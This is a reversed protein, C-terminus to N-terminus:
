RGPLPLLHLPRLEYLGDPLPALDVTQAAGSLHETTGAVGFVYVPDADSTQVYLGYVDVDSLASAALAPQLGPDVPGLGVTALSPVQWRCEAVGSSLEMQWWGILEVEDTTWDPAPVPAGATFGCLEVRASDLVTITLSSVLDVVEGDVFNVTGTVSWYVGAEAQNVPGTSTDSEDTDQADMNASDAAAGTNSDAEFSSSSCAVFAALYAALWGLQAFIRM